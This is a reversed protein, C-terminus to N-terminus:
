EEEGRKLCSSKVMELIRSDIQDKYEFEYNFWRKIRWSSYSIGIFAVIAIIALIINKM